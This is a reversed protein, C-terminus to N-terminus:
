KGKWVFLLPRGPSGDVGAREILGKKEYRYVQNLMAVHTGGYTKVAANITTPNAFLKAYEAQVKATRTESAKVRGTPEHREEAVTPAPTAAPRLMRSLFTM